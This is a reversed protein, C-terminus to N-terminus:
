TCPAGRLCGNSSLTLHLDAFEGFTLADDDDDVGQAARWLASIAARAPKCERVARLRADREACRREMLEVCERLQKEVNDVTAGVVHNKLATQLTLRLGAIRTEVDPAPSLLLPEPDSV